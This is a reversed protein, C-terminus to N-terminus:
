TSLLLTWDTFKCGEFMPSTAIWYICIPLLSSERGVCWMCSTSTTSCCCCPTAPSSSPDWSTALRLSSPAKSSAVHWCLWHHHLNPQRDLWNLSSTTLFPFWDSLSPTIRNKQFQTNNNVYHVNQSYCKWQSSYQSNWEIKIRANDLTKLEWKYWM